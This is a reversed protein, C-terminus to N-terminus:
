SHGWSLGDGNAGSKFAAAQGAPLRFLLVEPIEDGDLDAVIAECKDKENILCTPLLYRPQM